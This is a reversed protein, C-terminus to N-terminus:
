RMVWKEGRFHTADLGPAIEDGSIQFNMQLTKRLILPHDGVLVPKGDAGQINTFEGSLGTAFITFSGMRPM